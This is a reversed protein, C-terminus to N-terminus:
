SLHDGLTIRFEYGALTPENGGCAAWFAAPWRLERIDPPSTVTGSVFRLFPDLVPSHFILFLNNLAFSWFPELLVNKIGAGIKGSSIAL